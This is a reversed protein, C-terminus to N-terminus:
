LEPFCLSLNKLAVRRRSRGVLYLMSGLGRALWALLPLPLWHLLWSLGLVLRGGFETM